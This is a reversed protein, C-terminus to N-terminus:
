VFSGFESKERTWRGPHSWPKGRSAADQMEKQAAAKLMAEKCEPVRMCTHEYQPDNKDMGELQELWHEASNFSIMKEKKAAPPVDAPPGAFADAIAAMAEKPNTIMWKVTDWVEGEELLEEELRIELLTNKLEEKIIRKLTSKTIKM